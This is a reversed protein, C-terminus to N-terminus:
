SINGAYVHKLHRKAIEALHLLHAVDTPEADRMKYQPFFRTIHLPIDPNVSALWSSLAGMEDDSDNLGPVILTTVEVHCERSSLEISRKVPDLGGGISRYSDESFTKLDINMADIAPLLALLPEENIYGNTVVVNKLGADHVLRSADRVYEYGVLPENYTYAVGINGQPVYSLALEALREPSCYSSSSDNPGCMSIGNNQCFGCRFNCGYSGISLIYSGPFFRALPKKEIPDLAASTIRGYNLDKIRGDVCGRARCLGLRGDEVSCAHPCISCVAKM